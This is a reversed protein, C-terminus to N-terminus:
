KLVCCSSRSSLLVSAVRVACTALGDLPKLVALRAALPDGIDPVSLTLMLFDFFYDSGAVLVATDHFIQQRNM